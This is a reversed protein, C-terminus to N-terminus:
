KVILKTSECTTMRPRCITLIFLYLNHNAVSAMGKVPLKGVNHHVQVGGDTNGDEAFLLPITPISGLPAHGTPVNMQAHSPSGNIVVKQYTIRSKKKPKRSTIPELYVHNVAETLEMELPRKTRAMIIDFSSILTHTLLYVEVISRIVHRIAASLASGSKVGKSHLGTLSILYWRVCGTEDM